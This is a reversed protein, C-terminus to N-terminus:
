ERRRGFFVAVGDVGALFLFGGELAVAGEEGLGDEVEGFGVGFEEVGANEGLGCRDKEGESLVRLGGVHDLCADDGGVGCSGVFAFKEVGELAM